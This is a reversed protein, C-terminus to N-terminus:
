LIELNQEIKRKFFLEHRVFSHLVRLCYEKNNDKRIIKYYDCPGTSFLNNEHSLRIHYAEQGKRPYSEM